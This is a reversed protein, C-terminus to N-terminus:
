KTQISFQWKMFYELEGPSPELRFRNILLNLLELSSIFETHNMLYTDVYDMDQATEDALKEFLKTQTGAIAQLKGHMMEFLLVVQGNETVKLLKGGKGTTRSDSLDGVISKKPKKNTSTTTSANLSRGLKARTEKNSGLLYTWASPENNDSASKASSRRTTAAAASPKRKTAVDAPLPPLPTTTSSPPPPPPSPMSSTRPPIPPRKNKTQETIASKPAVATSSYYHSSVDSTSIRMEASSAVIFSSARTTSSTGSDSSRKKEQKNNMNSMISHDQQPDKRSRRHQQQMYNDKPPPIPPKSAQQQLPHLFSPEITTKHLNDTVDDLLISNLTSQSSSASSDTTSSTSSSRSRASFYSSSDPSGPANLTTILLFNEVTATTPPLPPLPSNNRTMPTSTLLKPKSLPSDEELSSADDATMTYSEFSSFILQTTNDYDDEEEEDIHKNDSDEEAEWQINTKKASPSILFSPRESM